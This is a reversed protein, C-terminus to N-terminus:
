IRFDAADPRRTIRGAVKTFGFRPVIFHHGVAFLSTVAIAKERKPIKAPQVETGAVISLSGDSLKDFQLAARILLLEM